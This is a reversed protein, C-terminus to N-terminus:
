INSMVKLLATAIVPHMSANTVKGGTSKEYNREITNGLIIKYFPSNEVFTRKWGPTCVSHTACFILKKAGKAKLKNAVMKATSGTSVEDEVIIITKDKIDLAEALPYSFEKSLKELTDGELTKQSIHGEANRDKLNFLVAKNLIKALEIARKISGKDPSYIFVEEDNATIPELLEAFIKAGSTNHAKINNEQCYILTAESHIDCFIIEDVGANSIQKIFMLNRNIELFKEKREQRRYMLFPTVAIVKKAGYQHKCAFCLALFQEKLQLNSISQFIIVNKDKLKEPRPIRFDDEKDPYSDFNIHSFSFNKGTNNNIWGMTREALPYNGTGSLIIFDDKNM